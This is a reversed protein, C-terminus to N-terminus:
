PLSCLGIRMTALPQPLSLRLSDSGASRRGEGQLLGGCYDFIAGQLTSRVSKNFLKIDSESLATQPCKTVGFFATERRSEALPM